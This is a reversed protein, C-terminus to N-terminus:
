GPAVVLNGSGLHSLIAYFRTRQNKHMRSCVLQMDVEDSLKVFHLVGAKKAAEALNGSVEAFTPGAFRVFFVKEVGQLTGDYTEPADYDLEVIEAGYEKLMEAKSLTHVAARVNAGQESLQKTVESGV